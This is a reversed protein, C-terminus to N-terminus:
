VEFVLCLLHLIVTEESTYPFVLALFLLQAGTDWNLDTGLRNLAGDCWSASHRKSQEDLFEM